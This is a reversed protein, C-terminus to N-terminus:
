VTAVFLLVSVMVGAGPPILKTSRVLEKLPPGRDGVTTVLGLDPRDLM